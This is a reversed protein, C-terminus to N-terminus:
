ARGGTTRRARQAVTARASEVTVQGARTTVGVTTLVLDGLPATAGVKPWYRPAFHRDPFYRSPFM